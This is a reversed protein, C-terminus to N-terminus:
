RPEEQDFPDTATAGFMIDGFAESFACVLHHEDIRRMLATVSPHDPADRPVGLRDLLIQTRRAHQDREQEDTLRQLFYGAEGILDQLEELWYEVDSDAQDHRDGPDPISALMGHAAVVDVAYPRPVAGTAVARGWFALAEVFPVPGDYDLHPHLLRDDPDPFDFFMFM